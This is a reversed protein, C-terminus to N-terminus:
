RSASAETGQLWNEVVITRRRPTGTARGIMIFTTDGPLVDYRAHWATGFFGTTSFLRRRAGVAFGSSTRIEASFLMGNSKFFLERGSRSWVPEIGGDTSVQWVAGTGPDPYPRVLVEERGSRDSVYAIWRGDPSVRMSRESAPSVAFDAASDSGVVFTRLDLGEGGTANGERVVMRNAPMFEVEFQNGPRALLVAASGSGDAPQWVIDREGEFLRSFAVRNGDLSWTVYTNVGQSTLRVPVSDGLTVAFIDGGDNVGDSVEYALHTGDPSVRVSNYAASPLPLQKPTGTRNVALLQRLAGSASGDVQYLLTGNESLQVSGVLPATVGTAITVGPGTLELRKMDFPARVMSGGSSMYVLQGGRHVAAYGRAITKVRRTTLDLVRIEYTNDNALPRFLTFLVARGGPLPQPAAHMENTNKELTTLTETPGGAVLRRALGFRVNTFYLYGDDGWWGGSLASDAIEQRGTGELNTRIVKRSETFLAFEKGDPSFAAQEGVLGEVRIPDLEGTRLVWVRSSRGAGAPDLGPGVGLLTSGDPSLSLAGYEGQTLVEYRRARLPEQTRLMFGAAGAALASGLAIFPWPNRGRRVGGVSSMAVTSLSEGSRWGPTALATAFDAASHFRDAPLKHLAKQIAAAVNTPVTDRHVKVPVPKETLVKAVIAQATSGSYPPDGVLMEYLTTALSYIDSRADVDRDGMAQEPSMYAPTGLSLGTATMRTAGAKTAALAIGFDAVLAVGDHLLVNEPKIDRHVVGQRHAYDLASAVQSALRVAEEVDLQKERSLKTRLSEGQVYPMVYYLLGDASGSDFLPLIHPHQLNATVKIEALFREGGIVASLEPHLVKIAVRRDHRLDQALYVTAMGGAGLERELRYRDTLAAGLRALADSV